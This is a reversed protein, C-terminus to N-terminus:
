AASPVAAAAAAAPQQKTQQRKQPQQQQRQRLLVNMVVAPLLQRLSCRCLLHMCSQCAPLAIRAASCNQTSPVSKRFLPLTSSGGSIDRGLLLICHRGAGRSVRLWQRQQRRLTAFATGASLHRCGASMRLAAGARCGTAKGVMSSVAPMTAPAACQAPRLCHCRAAFPASLATVAKQLKIASTESWLTMHAPKFCTDLQELGTASSAWMCAPKQYSENSQGIDYVRDAASGAKALCGGGIM